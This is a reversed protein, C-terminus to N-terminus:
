NESQRGWGNSKLSSMLLPLKREADQKEPPKDPRPRRVPLGPSSSGSFFDTIKMNHKVSNESSPSCTELEQKELEGDNLSVTQNDSGASDKSAPSVPSDEELNQPTLPQTEEDMYSATAKEDNQSDLCHISTNQSNGGTMEVDDQPDTTSTTKKPKIFWRELTNRLKLQQRPGVRQHSSKTKVGRLGGVGTKQRIDMKTEANNQRKEQNVIENNRSNSCLSPAQLSSCSVPASIEVRLRKAFPEFKTHETMLVVSVLFLTNTPKTRLQKKPLGNKLLHAFRLIHYAAM